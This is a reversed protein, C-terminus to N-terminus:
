LQSKSSLRQGLRLDLILWYPQLHDKWYESGVNNLTNFTLLLVKYQTWFCILLWNLHYLVLKIHNSWYTQTFVRAAVNQGLQLESYYNLPLGTYLMNCHDFRFTESLHTVTTLYAKKLLPQCILELQYFTRLWKWCMVTQSLTSGRGLSHVWYFHLGKWCWFKWEWILRLGWRGYKVMVIADPSNDPFNKKIRVTKSDQFYSSPPM